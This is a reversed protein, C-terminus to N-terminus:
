PFPLLPDTLFVVHQLQLLSMASNGFGFAVLLLVVRSFSNASNLSNMFHFSRFHGLHFRTRLLQTSFYASSELLCYGKPTLDLQYKGFTVALPAVDSIQHSIHVLLNTALERQMGPPGFSRMLDRFDHPQTM